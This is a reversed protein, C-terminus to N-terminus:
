VSISLLYYFRVLFLWSSAQGFRVLFLLIQAKKNAFRSPLFRPQRWFRSGSRQELEAPKCLLLQAIANLIWSFSFVCQPFITRFIELPSVPMAWAGITRNKTKNIIKYLRRGSVWASSLTTFTVEKRPTKPDIIYINLHPDVGGGTFGWIFLFFFHSSWDYTSPVGPPFFVHMQSPLVCLTSALKLLM